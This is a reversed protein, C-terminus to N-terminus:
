GDAHHGRSLEEQCLERVRFVSSKSRSEVVRCERVAPAYSSQLKSSRSRKEKLYLEFWTFFSFAIPFITLLIPSTAITGRRAEGAAAWNPM